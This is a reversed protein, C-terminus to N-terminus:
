CEKGVRREESRQPVAIGFPVTNDRLINALAKAASCEYRWTKRLYLRTGERHLIGEDLLFQKDGRFIQATLRGNQSRCGRYLSDEDTYADGNLTITELADLIYRGRLEKHSIM